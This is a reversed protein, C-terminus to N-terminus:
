TVLVLWTAHSRLVELFANAIDVVAYAAMPLPLCFPLFAVVVLPRTRIKRRIPNKGLM